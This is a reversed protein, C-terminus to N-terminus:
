ARDSEPPRDYASAEILRDMSAHWRGNWADLITDAPCTGRRVAAALPELYVTEDRGGPSAANEASVRGQRELGTWAIEILERAYDQLTHRGVRAQMGQRAALEGLELRLQFDWRRLVDWGADLCDDDYLLGKMWAPTALLLGPSQSDAARVEIYSKLRAEPFLTTLHTSWDSMQPEVGPVDGALFQRFTRGGSDLYRGARYIFYMPVDLAYDAYAGFLNETDFVFPLLGCRAPDTDRWIHARFSKYGSPRGDIIPSNASAAVLIPSMAMSLRLKKRADAESSYDFNAQVTATQQMMRHGLTGTRSMFRRMIRYREKPMWPMRDIPTKPTAGLGLFRLGLEHGVDLIHEVHRELEDAACHLSDCQQGSMELQGGPELTISARGDRLAIIAGDELVPQWDTRERLGALLAGIGNPGEYPVAEGDVASVVPKEYEVGIKWESRPKAGAAFYGELDASGHIPPSPPSGAEEVITSV